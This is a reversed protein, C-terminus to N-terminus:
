RCSDAVQDVEGGGATFFGESVPQWAAREALQVEGLQIEGLEIAVLEIAVLEAAGLEAAGLEIEGAVRRQRSGGCVAIRMVGVAGAVGAAHAVSM